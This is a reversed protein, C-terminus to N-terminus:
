SKGLLENAKNPKIRIIQLTSLLRVISGDKETLRLGKKAVTFANM